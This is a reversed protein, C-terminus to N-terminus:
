VNLWRKAWFAREKESLKYAKIIRRVLRASIGKTTSKLASIRNPHYDVKAAFAKVSGNAYEWIFRELADGPTPKPLTKLFVESEEPTLFLTNDVVHVSGNKGPIITLCKGAGIGREIEKLSKTSLAQSM